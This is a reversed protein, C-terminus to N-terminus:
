RVLNLRIGVNLQPHALFPRPILEVYGGGEMFVSLDNSPLDYELGLDVAPGLSIQRVASATRDAQYLRRSNIQVGYGYTLHLAERRFLAKHYNYMGQFLFGAGDYVLKKDGNREKGYYKQRGWFFGYTGINVDFARNGESFYKRINIGLPEGARVGLAWNNYYAQAFGSFTASLCLITLIAKRM